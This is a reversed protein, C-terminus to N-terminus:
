LYPAAILWSPVTIAVAAAFGIAWVKKNWSFIKFGDLIGFPILNFTAIIGNIFAVIAFLSVYTLSLVPLSTAGLFAAGIAM